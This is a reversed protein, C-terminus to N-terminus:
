FGNKKGWESMVVLVPKLSLGKETLTYEVKPPVEPYVMRSILGIQEMQKLQQSLVKQSIGVIGKNLEGFRKTDIFLERLILIVWKNKLFYLTAELPCNFEKEM